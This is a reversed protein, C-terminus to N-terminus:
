RRPAHAQFYRLWAAVIAGKLDGAQENQEITKGWYFSIWVDARKKSGEIFADAEELSCSLPFIEEIVVPKGVDFRELVTMEYEHPWKKPYVHVCMLDLADKLAFADFGFSKDGAKPSFPLMGVTILAQRDHKRIAASMQKVWARAIEVGGNM